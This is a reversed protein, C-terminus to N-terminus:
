FGFYAASIIAFEFSGDEASTGASTMVDIYSSTRFVLTAKVPQTTSGSVYGYGALMVKPDGSVFSWSAPFGIRYKGTSLRSVTLTSDDFTQYGGFSAGASHGNVTGVALARLAGGATKMTVVCERRAVIWGYFETQTGYGLLDIMDGEWIRLLSSAKGDRFFFKGSPATLDSHDNATHSGWKWNVLTIRRGSQNTDWPLNYVDEWSGASSRIAVNDFCEISYGYPAYSFPNRIGGKIKVNGNGDWEVNKKSLHGAGTLFDLMINPQWTGGDGAYTQYDNTGDVGQQSILRNQTFVASGLKAFEALLINTFLYPIKEFLIWTADSGNAGYDESPNPNSDGTFTGQRNLLYVQGGHEVFPATRETRTYTATKNWVGNPYPMITQNTNDSYIVPESWAGAIGNVVACDTRWVRGITTKLAFEAYETELMDRTGFKLLRFRIFHVGATAVTYNLTKQANSYIFDKYGLTPDASDLAGCYLYASDALVARIDINVTANDVTTEFVIRCNASGSIKLRPARHYGDSQIAWLQSDGFYNTATCGDVGPNAVGDNDVSYNPTPFWGVPNLDGTAPTAPKELSRRYRTYVSDGDKGDKGEAKKGTNVWEGNVWEYWYGNIIRPSEPSIEINIGGSVRMNRILQAHLM